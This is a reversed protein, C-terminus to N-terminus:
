APPSAASKGSCPVYTGDTLVIGYRPPLHHARKVVEDYLEWVEEAADGIAEGAHAVDRATMQIREGRIAGGRPHRNREVYESGFVWGAHIHENRLRVAEDLKPSLAQARTQLEPESSWQHLADMVRKKLVGLTLDRVEKILATEELGKTAWYLDVLAEELMGGQLAVWGLAQLFEDRHEDREESM